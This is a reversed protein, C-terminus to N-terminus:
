PVQTRWVKVPGAIGSPLLPSDAKFPDFAAFAIAAARPQKDGILRNQWLNTVNIEVHNDGVKIADTVDVIFPHKWAVGVLRGNVFVHALDAVSGLDLRLRAHETFWSAPASMTATYTATGSFYRVGPIKSESWLGISRMLVHRPAGGNPPFTVDWPGDLVAVVENAAVPVTASQASLSRRFVVFIADEAGLRLQLTTRGDAMQYSVPEVTGTDARWLEPIRGSVRFSVNLERSHAAGNSVFYVDGDKVSRHAFRLEPNMAGDFTVDPDVGIRKLADGIPMSDLVQGTGALHETGGAGWIENVLELFAGEDDALSPTRLPRSGVVVAGYRVLERIKRLVPLSMLRTSPDLALIRYQAGAPTVLKGDRVSILHVLADANLFDFSYGSPITPSTTAFLSTANADEGYLYAIDAVYRGQQMLYSSRSLYTVWADADGAWTEKRTFWIGFPGLGIGPGPREDPQHASAHIVFRNVGMALERDAVPKLMAPSVAYTHGLTTFSEAAVLPKGYIHAVSSSERIDAEDGKPDRGLDAPSFGLMAGMPIDALKKAEIGDGVFARLHEHSEGYLGLGRQHVAEAVQAYNAEVILDSLTKRFDWLFRDSAGASQVVRGALVPLWASADYGRRKKFQALMDDTWNQPGAEYSDM